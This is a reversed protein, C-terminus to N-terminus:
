SAESPTEAARTTLCARDQGPGRRRLVRTVIRFRAAAQLSVRRNLALRVTGLGVRCRTKQFALPSVCDAGPGRRRRRGALASGLRGGSRDGRM